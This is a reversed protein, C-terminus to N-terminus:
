RGLKALAASRMDEFDTETPPRYPPTFGTAIEGGGKLDGQEQQQRQLQSQEQLQSQLQSQQQYQLQDRENVNSLPPRSDVQEIWEEYELPTRGQGKELGRYRSYRAKRCKEFYAAGDRDLKPAIMGWLIANIGDFDPVEGDAVYRVAARFLGALSADDLALLPMWDDFYAM